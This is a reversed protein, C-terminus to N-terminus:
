RLHLPVRLTPKVANTVLFIVLRKSFSRQSKRLALAASLRGSEVVFLSCLPLSAADYVPKINARLLVRILFIARLSKTWFRKAKPWM